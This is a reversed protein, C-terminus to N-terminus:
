TLTMNHFKFVILIKKTKKIINLFIEKSFQFRKLFFSINSIIGLSFSNLVTFAGLLFFNTPYENRKFFLAGMTVLLALFNVFIM